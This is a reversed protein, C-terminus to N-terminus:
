LLYNEVNKGEYKGVTHKRPHNKLFHFYAVGDLASTLTISTTMRCPWGTGYPSAM